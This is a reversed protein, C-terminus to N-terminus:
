LGDWHSFIQYVLRETNNKTPDNVFSSTIHWTPICFPVLYPASSDYSTSQARTTYCSCRRKGLGSHWATLRYWFLYTGKSSSFLLTLEAHSKAKSHSTVINVFVFAARNSQCLWIESASNLEVLM